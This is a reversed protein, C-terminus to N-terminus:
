GHLRMGICLIKSPLDFGVLFLNAGVEFCVIRLPPRFIAFSALLLALELVQPVAVILATGTSSIHTGHNSNTSNMQGVDYVSEKNKKIEGQGASTTSRQPATVPRGVRCCLYHASM